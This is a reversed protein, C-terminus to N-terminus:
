NRMETLNGVPHGQAVIEKLWGVDDQEMTQGVAFFHIVGEEAKIRRAAEVAYRKTADDLNGKEYDWRMQDWTPYQRSMELDLTIAILHRKTPSIPTKQLGSAGVRRARFRDPTPSKKQSLAARIVDSRLRSSKGAKRRYSGGTGRGEEASLARTDSRASSPPALPRQRWRRPVHPLRYGRQRACEANQSV